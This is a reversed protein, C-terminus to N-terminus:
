ILSNVLCFCLFLFLYIFALMFSSVNKKSEQDSAASHEVDPVYSPPVYGPDTVVSVIFSFVCLFALFTFILANLLGNSSELGFWDKMFIFVTAYYVFGLLVFMAIIPISVLRRFKM